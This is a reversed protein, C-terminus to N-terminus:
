EPLIVIFEIEVQMDPGLLREVQVWSSSPFLNDSYFAKRVLNAQELAEINTTYIVEKAIHAPTANYDNLIRRMTLYIEKVQDELTAAGSGIGSLYLTREHLVAQTYGLPQEWDGYHRRQLQASTNSTSCGSITFLLVMPWYLYNRNIM